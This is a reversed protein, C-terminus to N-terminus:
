TWGAHQHARTLSKTRGLQLNQQQTHVINTVVQGKIIKFKINKIHLTGWHWQIVDPNCVPLNGHTWQPAFSTELKKYGKHDM